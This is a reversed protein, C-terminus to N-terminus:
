IVSSLMVGEDEAVVVTASSEIVFDILSLAISSSRRSIMAGEGEDGVEDRGKSAKEGSRCAVSMGDDDGKEVATICPPASSPSSKRLSNSMIGSTWGSCSRSSNEGLRSRGNPPHSKVADTNQYVLENRRNVKM